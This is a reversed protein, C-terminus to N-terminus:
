NGNADGLIIQLHTTQTNSASGKYGGYQIRGRNASIHTIILNEGESNAEANELIKLFYKSAKIPYRGAAIGKRHPLEKNFRRYPVAVEKAIVKELYTKAESIEMGRLAAAIERSVKPSIPLERGMSRYKGKTSYRLKM